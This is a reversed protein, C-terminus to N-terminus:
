MSAEELSKRKIAALRAPDLNVFLSKEQTVLVTGAPRGKAKKVWKKRTYIVEGKGSKKLDSYQLALTAADRLTEHPVQAGKELRIIVHSGPTGRAHLWMDESHAFTHTLAENETSNRGVYISIDDISLFRKFPGARKPTKMNHNKPFPTRAEQPSTGKEISPVGATWTDQNTALLEEQLHQLDQEARALRPRLERESTEYKRHRKFYAEMNGQPTKQPDLPIVLEPFGEDFYDVVTIAMQGKRINTLNGKLLEGYRQYEKYQSSKELDTQLGRMRRQIKKIAKRIQGLRLNRARDRILEQEHLRYRQEIAYSIPCPEQTQPQIPREEEEKSRVVRPPPPTYRQGTRQKEGKLSALVIQDADLLLLNASKGTLAALLLRPGEKSQLTIQVLRDGAVQEIKEVRSGQIHARVYQCFAPPTPPNPYRERIIHLRSLDAEASLFLDYTRGPTRVEVVLGHPSPQFVKQIWGGVLIPGIEVVVADIETKSLAM